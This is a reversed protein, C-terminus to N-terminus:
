IRLTRANHYAMQLRASMPIQRHCHPVYDNTIGTSARVVLPGRRKDTGGRVRKRQDGIETQDRWGAYTLWADLAAQGRKGSIIEVYRITVPDLQSIPITNMTRLRVGQGLVAVVRVARINNCM